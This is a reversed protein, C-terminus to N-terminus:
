GHCPRRTRAPFPVVNQLKVRGWASLARLPHHVLTCESRDRLGACSQPWGRDAHRPLSCRRFPGAGGAVDFGDANSCLQSRGPWRWSRGARPLLCLLRPLIGPRDSACRATDAVPNRAADLNPRATWAVPVIGEPEAPLLAQYPLIKPQVRMHPGSFM